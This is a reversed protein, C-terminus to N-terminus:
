GLLPAVLNQHRRPMSSHLEMFKRVFFPQGAELSRNSSNGRFVTRMPEDKSAINFWETKHMMAHAASAGGRFATKGIHAQPEPLRHFM